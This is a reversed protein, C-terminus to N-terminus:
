FAVYILSLHEYHKLCLRFNTPYINQTLYLIIINFFYIQLIGYVIIIIHKGYWNCFSQYLYLIIVLILIPLMQTGGYSPYLIINQFM